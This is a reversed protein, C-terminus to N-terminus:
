PGPAAPALTVGLLVPEAGPAAALARFPGAAAITVGAAGGADLTLTRTLRPLPSGVVLAAPAAFVAPDFRVVAHRPDALALELAGRLPCDASGASTCARLPSDELTDVVLKPFAQHEFAGLDPFGAVHRPDGNGRQDWVLPNGDLDVAAAPDGLNIAPSGGGLAVIPTPGNFYGFPGLRPETRLIPEGCGAGSGILNRGATVGADPEATCDDGAGSDALVSNFLRLGGTAYLGGGRGAANGAFTCHVLTSDEALAAVGGGREGARNGAFTANVVVLREGLHAIAGGDCAAHNDHFAVGEVRLEGLNLV